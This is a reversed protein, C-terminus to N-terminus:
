LEDGGQLLHLRRTIPHYFELNEIEQLNEKNEKGGIFIINSESLDKRQLLNKYATENDIFIKLDKPKAELIKFAFSIGKEQAKLEMKNINTDKLIHKGCITIKRNEEFCIISCWGAINYGKYPILSADSYIRIM